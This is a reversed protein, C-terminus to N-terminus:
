RGSLYMNQKETNNNKNQEALVSKVEQLFNILESLSDGLAAFVTVFSGKGFLIEVIKEYFMAFEDLMQAREEFTTNEESIGALRKEFKIIDNIAKNYEFINDEGCLMDFQQGNIIVPITRKETKNNYIFAM